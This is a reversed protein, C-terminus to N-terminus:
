NKYFEFKDVNFLGRNNLKIHPIVLLSVFALVMLLTSSGNECIKKAGEIIESQEKAVTEYDLDSMLGGIPLPMNAIVKKDQVVVIGGEKGLANVAVAMNEGDSGIVSINHSDHGITQAIAGNEVTFGRLFCKGMSSEGTYREINACLSLGQSSEEYVANTILSGTEIEIVPENKDFDKKFDEATMEKINVTNTVDKSDASVREFNVKGDSAILQGNKFVYKINQASIDETIVIDAIKNPAIAGRDYLRNMMAGNYSAMTYASIPDFGKEIALRICNSITGEKMIEETHKDDTCFAFHPLNYPTVAGLADLNKAGTGQRIYINLGASVKELAEKENSCEHDNSIGGCVYANLEKGELMPAHGDKICDCDLKKMIDEDCNVVGVSNMMEGLGKFDYKSLLEKTLDGDIVAGSDDFPTAPVCSPLMFEIDIPSNKSDELMFKLGKEGAVNAIEHPDAIVTTVGWPAVLRSFESPTVMTSEIHIHCDVFGPAVYAGNVDIEKEGEYDGIGLIIGDKIGVNGEVIRHGLVDIIKGNKLVIDAKERGAASSIINKM